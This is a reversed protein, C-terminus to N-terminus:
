STKKTLEVFDRTVRVDFILEDDDYNWVCELYENSLTVVKQLTQGLQRRPDAQLLVSLIGSNRIKTFHETFRLRLKTYM